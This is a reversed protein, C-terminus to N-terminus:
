ALAKIEDLMKVSRKTFHPKKKLTFTPVMPEFLVTKGECMDKIDKASLRVGKSAIKYAGDKDKKAKKLAYMKKGAIWAEDIDYEHGWQGLDDGEDGGFDECLLSDTDCYVVGSSVVITRLLLARVQSTISAATAVNFYRMEDIELPACLVPVGDLTAYETYNDNAYDEPNFDDPAFMYHGYNEPNSGFKGYLSNMLLKAFLRQAIWYDLNGVITAAVYREKEAVTLTDRANAKAIVRMNKEAESKVNYFHTIYVSFDEEFHFNYARLIRYGCILNAEMATLFEHGIAYYLRSVGDNPFTIRNKEDRYPLAGNSVCEVELFTTPRIDELAPNSSQRYNLGYPHPTMMAWPYASKIDKLVLHKKIHGSKFVEVRGGFYFRSFDAFFRPTSHPAKLDAVKLWTKMAAGAQTMHLGYTNIFQTVLQHLYVCDGKLYTSIKARNAPINRKNKEFIAYDIEDKKFASLPTPLLAYSDRLTAKGIKCEVLRGNILMIPEDRNMYKLLFHFDFKGGNHAYVIGDYEKIVAIADETKNFEQYITGDYFGWM